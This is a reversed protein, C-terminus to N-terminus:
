DRGVEERGEKKGRVSKDINLNFFFKKYFKRKFYSYISDCVLELRGWGESHMKYKGFGDAEFYDQLKYFIIPLFHKLSQRTQNM